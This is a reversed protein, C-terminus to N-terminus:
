FSTLVCRLISFSIAHHAVHRSKVGFGGLGFRPKTSKTDFWSPLPRIEGHSLKSELFFAESLFDIKFIKV